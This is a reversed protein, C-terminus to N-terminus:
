RSEATKSEARKTDKSDGPERREAKPAADSRLTALIMAVLNVQDPTGRVVLLGSDEHYRLEAKPLQGKASEHPGMSLGQEVATLITNAPISDTLSRLAHVTVEPERGRSVEGPQRARDQWVSVVHVPAGGGARLTDIKVRVDDRQLEAVAKLASEVPADILAVPPVNVEDAHESVVVNIDKGAARVAVVYQALTGGKFNLTVTQVQQAPPASPVRDDVAQEVAPQAAPAAKPDRQARACPVLAFASLTAAAIWTASRRNDNSTRTM